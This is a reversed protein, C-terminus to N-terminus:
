VKAGQLQCTCRSRFPHLVHPLVEESRLEKVPCDPNSEHDMHCDQNSHQTFNDLWFHEPEQPVRLIRDFVRKSIQDVLRDRLMRPPDDEACDEVKGKGDDEDMKRKSKGIRRERTQKRHPESEVVRYSFDWGVNEQEM